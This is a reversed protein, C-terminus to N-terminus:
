IIKRGVEHEVGNVGHCRLDVEGLLTRVPADREHATQPRPVAQMGLQKFRAIESLGGAARERTNQAPLQPLSPDAMQMHHVARLLGDM